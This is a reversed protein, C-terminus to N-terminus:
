RSATSVLKATAILRVRTRAHSVAAPVANTNPPIVNTNHIPAWATSAFSIVPPCSPCNRSYAPMTPM